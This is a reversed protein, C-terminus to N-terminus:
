ENQGGKMQEYFQRVEVETPKSISYSCTIGRIFRETLYSALVRRARDSLNRFLNKMWRESLEQAYFRQLNLYTEADALSFAEKQHLLKERIPAIAEATNRNIFTDFAYDHTTWRLLIEMEEMPFGRAALDVQIDRLSDPQELLGAMISLCSHLKVLQPQQRGRVFVSHKDITIGPLGKANKTTLIDELRKQIWRNHETIYEIRNFKSVKLYASDIATPELNEPEQALCGSGYGLCVLWLFPTAKM